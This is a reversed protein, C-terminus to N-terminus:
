KVLPALDDYFGYIAIQDGNGYHLCRDWLIDAKEGVSIGFETELDAKLQDTLQSRKQRREEVALDYLQQEEKHKNRASVMADYQEDDMESVSVRLIPDLKPPRVDLKPPLYFGEKIRTLTPSEDTEQEAVVAPNDAM